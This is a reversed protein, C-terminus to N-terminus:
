FGIDVKCPSNQTRGTTAQVKVRRDGSAGEVRLGSANIADVHAGWVDVASVHNGASAFLAAYISRASLQLNCPESYTLCM